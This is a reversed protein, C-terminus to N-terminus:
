HLIRHKHTQIELLNPKVRNNPSKEANEKKNKKIRAISM